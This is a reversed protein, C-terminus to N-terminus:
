AAASEPLDSSRPVDDATPKLSNNSSIRSFAGGLLLFIAVAVLNVGVIWRTGPRNLHLLYDTGLYWQTAVGFPSFEAYAQWYAGSALAYGLYPTKLVPIQLGWFIKNMQVSRSTGELLSVGCFLGFVYFALVLLTIAFVPGQASALMRPSSAIVLTSGCIALLGITRRQWTRM